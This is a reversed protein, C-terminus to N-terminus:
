ETKQDRGPKHRFVYGGLPVGFQAAIVPCKAKLLYFVDRGSDLTEYNGQGKSIVIDAREFEKLFEPGCESLITGAKESGTEIVKACEGLGSAYADEATADNLIPSSRVAYLVELDSLHEILVRDFVTEGANDGVIMLSKATKLKNEFETIDSVSFERELEGSVSGEIDVTGLVAPDILNGAASVKLAWYLSNGKKKLFSKIFPLAKLAKEIDNRKIDAYPDSDGTHKEIIKQFLACLDPPCAYRGYEESERIADYLIARHVEEDNSSLRSAETVQRLM